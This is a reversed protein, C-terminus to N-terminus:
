GAPDLSVSLCVVPPNMLGHPHRHRLLSQKLQLYRSGNNRRGNTSRRKNRLFGGRIRNGSGDSQESGSCVKVKMMEEPRKTTRFARWKKKECTEGGKKGAFFGDFKTILRFM